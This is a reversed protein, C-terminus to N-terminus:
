DAHEEEVEVIRKTKVYEMNRNYWKKKKPAIIKHFDPLSEGKKRRKMHNSKYDNLL